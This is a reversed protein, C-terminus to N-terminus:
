KKLFIAVVNKAISVFFIATPPISATKFTKETSKFVQTLDGKKGLFPRRVTYFGFGSQYTLFLWLSNAPKKKQNTPLNPLGKLSSVFTLCLFHAFSNGWKWEYGRQFIKKQLVANCSTVHLLSFFTGTLGQAQGKNTSRQCQKRYWVRLPM